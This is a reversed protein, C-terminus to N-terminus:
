HCLQTDQCFYKQPLSHTFTLTLHSRKNLIPDGRVGLDKQGVLCDQLSQRSPSYTKWFVTGLLNDFYAIKMKHTCHAQTHTSEMSPDEPDDQDEQHQHDAPGEQCQGSAGQLYIQAKFHDYYSTLINEHEGWKVRM